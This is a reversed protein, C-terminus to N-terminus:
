KSIILVSKQGIVVQKKLTLIPPGTSAETRTEKSDDNVSLEDKRASTSAINLADIEANSNRDTNKFCISANDNNDTISTPPLMEISENIRSCDGKEGNDNDTILNPASSTIKETTPMQNCSTMAEGEPTMPRANNSSSPLLVEKNQDFFKQWIHRERFILSDQRLHELLKIFISFDIQNFLSTDDRAIVAHEGKEVTKSSGTSYQKSNCDRIGFDPLNERSLM